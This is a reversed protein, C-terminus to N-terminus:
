RGAEAGARRKRAERLRAACAPSCCGTRRGLRGAPDYAAGCAACTEKGGFLAQEVASVDCPYRM